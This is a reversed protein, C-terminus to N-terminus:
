VALIYYTLALECINWGYWEITAEPKATITTEFRADEQEVVEVDEPKKL